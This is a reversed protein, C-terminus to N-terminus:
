GSLLSLLAVAHLTTHFLVLCTEVIRARCQHEVMLGLIKNRSNFPVVLPVVNVNIIRATNCDNCSDGVFM